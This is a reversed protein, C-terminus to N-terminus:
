EVSKLSEVMSIKKLERTMILNVILSFVITVLFSWVYSLLHISRGFMVEDIEATNIVFMCLATGLGLGVAAGMVSLIINERFVYSSVERDYFGLVKLTAIERIRETINVNTLNYLVVFALAGASVILVIVVLDMIKIMDSFTSSSSSNMMVSLVADNKLMKESFANGDASETIGNIFYIINYEPQKGFIEEYQASTMYLYNGVYHETLGSIIFDREESDNIRIRATEGKGAGLLRGTKETAIIGDSLSLKEGSVREHLDIMQGFAEADEVCTVYAQVSRGNVTLTYQKILARTTLTDPNYENMDSYISELEDDTIEPDYALYGNYNYLSNYQLGVIDSISDKLGFGTLSLATCGAIGIVTMFMRRKYRFLNRGSVKGFFGLRNWIFGIREIFVRKGSKPAKPRMLSAPTEKLVKKSTFFVTLAIAAVMSGVSILVNWINYLYHIKTINYLMSYAYIIVTPFILVGAFAGLVSGVAAATVAYTMYHRMITANSYGLAKLTGIQTRQEEVMRSMTTLCVLAAVLLFFVPFITAIKGIRESNSEYEAYGANDDRLFIYWKAEGADSIKKRADALKKEADAIETNFKEEGEAYDKLGDSYKQKADELEAVGDNYKKVGDEYEARKEALEAAGSDYDRQAQELTKAGDNYQALGENYEALGDEYKKKGEAFDAASANYEALGANYQELGSDIQAQAAALQKEGDTITQENAAIEAAAATLQQETQELTLRTQELVAGTQELAQKQAELQARQQQLQPNDKGYLQEAQELQIEAQELQAKGDNYQALGQEYQQKGLDYQEQGDALQQKAQELAAKGQALEESKANVETQAEDLQAKSDDLQKKADALQKEGEDIQKKSDALVQKADDLKAKNDNLEAWGDDLQKKADALQEEADALQVAGDDIEAKADALEKEGDAIQQEADALEAKANDLEKRGDIKAQELEEEGDAIERQAEGVVEDYRIESREKGLEELKDSIRDRLQEYEESYSQMGKLEDSTVYIETYIEQTFDSETVYMFADIVGDGVTTSGRQTVSIFMPTNYFGVVIYESNNLPFDESETLDALTVTDGIEIGGKMVNFNVICENDAQPARGETIDVRNVEDNDWSYVRTLFEKEGNRLALDTYKSTYAGSVGDIDAIAAADGDTLGFTSLVRLDFLDHEDYYDDASVKMMENTARVGSFFGVGIACITFISLFRNKTRSIERFINKNVAKM